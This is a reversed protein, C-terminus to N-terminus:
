CPSHTAVLVDVNNEIGFFVLEAERISGCAVIPIPDSNRFKPIIFEVALESPVKITAAVSVLTLSTELLNSGDQIIFDGEEAHNIM